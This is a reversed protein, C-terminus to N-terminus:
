TRMLASGQKENQSASITQLLDKAEALCERYSNFWGTEQRRKPLATLTNKIKDFRYEIGNKEILAADSYDIKTKQRILYGIQWDNEEYHLATDLLWEAIEKQNAFQYVQQPDTSVSMLCHEYYNTGSCRDQIYWKRGFAYCAPCQGNQSSFRFIM